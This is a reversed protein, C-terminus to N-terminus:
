LMISRFLAGVPIAMVERDGDMARWTKGLDADDMTGLVGRAKTISQDLTAVLEAATACGPQTFQPLPFPSLRSIDAIAGRVTAVHLALQGLSMSKDHPKWGLRDDPVRELVRRTTQAEQELENLLAEITSM